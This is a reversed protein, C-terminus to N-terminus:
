GQDWRNGERAGQGGRDDEAEGPQASQVEGPEALVKNFDMEMLTVRSGDRYEANTEVIRGAVEVALSIKMDKFMQQMMMM